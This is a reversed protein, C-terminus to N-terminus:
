TGLSVSKALSSAAVGVARMLHRVTYNHDTLIEQFQAAEDTSFASSRERTPDILETLLSLRQLADERSM